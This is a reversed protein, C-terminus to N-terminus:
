LFDLACHYDFFADRNGPDEAPFIQMLQQYAGHLAQSSAAVAPHGALSRAHTFAAGDRDWAVFVARQQALAEALLRHYESLRPPPRGAALHAGLQEMDALVSARAGGKDNFARLAAVRLVIGAEAAAFAAALYTKDEAAMPSRSFDMRTRRHPIAAYADDISGYANLAPLVLTSVVPARVLNGLLPLVTRYLDQAPRHGTADGRLVFERDVVQFGPILDYSAQCVLDKGGFLVVRNAAGPFHRAWEQAEARTPASLEMGYLLLQIYVLREDDIAIGGSSTHLSSAIPPLGAQPAVGRFGDVGGAGAGAWANCAPCSVGIPEILLVKGAFSSLRVPKGETDTLELDPYRQDLRPPWVREAETAAVDHPTAATEARFYPLLWLAALAVAGVMALRVFLSQPM